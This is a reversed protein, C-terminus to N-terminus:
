QKRRSDWLLWALSFPVFLINMAFSVSEKTPNMLRYIGDAYEPTIAILFITIGFWALAFLLWKRFVEDRVFFIFPAVILSALSFQVVPYIISLRLQDLPCEGRGNPFCVYSDYLRGAIVIMGSLYM